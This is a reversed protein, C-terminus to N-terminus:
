KWQVTTVQLSGNSLFLQNTKNLVLVVSCNTVTRNLAYKNLRINANAGKKYGNM